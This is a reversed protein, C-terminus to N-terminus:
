NAPSEIGFSKLLVESYMLAEKAGHTLRTSEKAFMIAEDKTKATIIAPALRMLGGNGASMRDTSGTFANAKNESYKRLAGAVTMGVDFCKGRPSYKGKYRWDLFNNMIAHGDFNPGYSKRKEIFADAMALAMSTDDTFEGKSVKHFGGEKYERVYNEPSRAGSVRHTCGDCGIALGFLMGIDQDHQRFMEKKIAKKMKDESERYNDIKVNKELSCRKALCCRQGHNGKRTEGTEVILGEGNGYKMLWQYIEKIKSLM